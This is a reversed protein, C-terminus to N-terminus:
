FSRQWQYGRTRVANRWTNRKGLLSTSTRENKPCTDWGNKIYLAIINYLSLMGSLLPCASHQDVLVLQIPGLLLVRSNLFGYTNNLEDTVRRQAQPHVM